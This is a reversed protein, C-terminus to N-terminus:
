AYTILMGLWQETPCIRLCLTEFEDQRAAPVAALDPFTEGGIYLYYRHTDTDVDITYSVGDKNVLLYGPPSSSSACYMDDGGCMALDNNAGSRWFPLASADKLHTSPNKATPTVSGNVSGRQTEDVWWEHVYVDFGAARLTNQIYAPSQGGLAKWRAGLRDRRQQETLNASPLGFQEEWQDLERTTAPFIDLWVSDFFAKFGDFAAGLGKFFLSLQKNEATLRWAKANPLLHKITQFIM